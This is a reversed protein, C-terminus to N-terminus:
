SIHYERMLLWKVEDQAFRLIENAKKFFRHRLFVFNGGHKWPLM